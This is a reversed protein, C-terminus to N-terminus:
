SLKRCHIFYHIHFHTHLQLFNYLINVIMLATKLTNPLLSNAFFTTKEEISTSLFYIIIIALPHM